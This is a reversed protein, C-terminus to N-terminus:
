EICKETGFFIIYFNITISKNWKDAPPRDCVSSRSIRFLCETETKRHHLNIPPASSHWDIHWTQKPMNECWRFRFYVGSVFQHFLIIIITRSRRCTRVNKRVFKHTVRVYRVRPCSPVCIRWYLNWQNVSIPNPEDIPQANTQKKIKFGARWMAFRNRKENRKTRALLMCIKKMEDTADSVHINATKNVIWSM